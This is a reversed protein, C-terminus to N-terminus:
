DDRPAKALTIAAAVRERLLAAFQDPTRAGSLLFGKGAYLMLFTPTTKVYGQADYMDRLVRELAQRSNFCADFEPIDLGLETALNEFVADPSEQGAWAAQRDFLLRRMQWFQGQDGACEAAAAATLANAHEKLPLHKFVWLVQGSQVFQEDLVDQTELTHRACAPCQFDTFEVMVLPAKPNGKYQDGALTFGPRAPDPALGEPRAWEPLEPAKPEKRKSSPPEQGTELAAVWQDFTSLPLAGVLTHTAGDTDTFQFSPTGSFGLAKGEAVSQEVAPKKRGSSMCAQYTEMEAGVHKAVGALFESPDPLRNWVSQTRFLEDHMAWFLDAGQEAVCLAAESGRPATPHLSVLPFDRYVLKVRGTAVYKDLLAPLTLHFHRGCFPCLYDSFEELTIPADPNGRYPHGEATFGVSVPVVTGGHTEADLRQTATFREDPNLSGESQAAGLSAARAMWPAIAVQIFLMSSFLFSAAVYSRFRVKCRNNKFYMFLIRRHSKM